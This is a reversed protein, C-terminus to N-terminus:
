KFFVKFFIRGNSIRDACAELDFRRLAQASIGCIDEEPVGRLRAYFCLHERATLLPFLADKQPCYGLDKYVEDVDDRISKGNVLVDGGSPEIEGTIMRFTTTKGAGNLGLLGFCEGRKLGVSLGNVVVSKSTNKSCVLWSWCKRYVKRLKDLKVYIGNDDHEVPLDEGGATKQCKRLLVGFNRRYQIALNVAFYFVGQGLMCLLNRGVSDLRFPTYSAAYGFNRKVEATNYLYSMELLGQGLCYHPFIVSFVIKLLDSIRFLGPNHKNVINLVTTITVTSVGIFVNLCSSMVFSSGALKFMYNLPYMFPISAWGYALILLVLSPFNETSTFSRANFLLFMALSIIAPPLYNLLDWAFNALWYIYPPLGCVLQLQKSNTEREEVLVVLFSAPIFSLAFIIFISVSLDIALRRDLENMYQAKTLSM